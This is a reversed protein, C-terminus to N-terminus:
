CSRIYQLYQVQSYLISYCYAPLSSYMDLKPLPYQTAFFDDYYDLVRIAVDLGFRGEEARGPPSFVRINVKNRSAGQIFDFEGVAFALLYTSMKPSKQFVVKKKGNPLHSTFLEPMNSLATLQAPVILTVSFTAKVAPEDWCPFARRADLAEFQTSAMVKKKGAADSYSSRYFGAMDANLIGSFKIVLLQQEKGSPTVEKEFVLTVTKDKLNYDLRVAPNSEDGLFASM